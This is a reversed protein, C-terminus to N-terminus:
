KSKAEREVSLSTVLVIMNKIGLQYAYHIIESIFFFFGAM